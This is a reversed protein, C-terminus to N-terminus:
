LGRRLSDELDKLPQIQDPKADPGLKELAKKVHGLDGERRERLSQVMSEFARFFDVLEDGKRLRSPTPLEGDAVSSMLRQMKYVPGAVRHTVLIGAIGILVVLVALAALLTALMNQQQGLLSESQRKLDGAQRELAKQQSALREDQKSADGMFAERLAPNDGYVPDKVINMQVVASVKQSETLVERGRAVVQEGQEVARRSQEIVARSTNWLVAGLCVSLLLAIAVLYGTYKLQFHRDLLYNKIRRQHTTM